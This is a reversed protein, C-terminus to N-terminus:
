GGSDGSCADKGGSLVGACLQDPPSQSSIPCFPEPLYFLSVARLNKRSEEPNQTTGWGSVVLKSGPELKQMDSPQPLYIPQSGSWFKIPKVLELLAYDFETINGVEAAKPHAIVRSIKHSTASTCM